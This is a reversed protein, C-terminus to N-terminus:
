VLKRKGPLQDVFPRGVVGESGGEVAVNRPSHDVFVGAGGVIGSVCTRNMPLNAFWSCGGVGEAGVEV